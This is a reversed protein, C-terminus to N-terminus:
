VNHKESGYIRCAETLKFTHVNEQYEPNSIAYNISSDIQTRLVTVEGDVAIVAVKFYPNGYKSTGLREVYEVTGTIKNAM